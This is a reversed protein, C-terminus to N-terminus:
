ILFLVCWVVYIQNNNSSNVKYWLNYTVPIHAIQHILIFTTINFLSCSKEIFVYSYLIKGSYPAETTQLAWVLLHDYIIPMISTLSLGKMVERLFEVILSCCQAWALSKWVYKWWFMGQFCVRKEMLWQVLCRQSQLRRGQSVIEEYFWMKPSHHTGNWWLIGWLVVKTMRYGHWYVYM